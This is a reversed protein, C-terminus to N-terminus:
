DEQFMFGKGHEETLQELWPLFKKSLCDLYKDRNDNGKLTVLPGLGESWFCGWVVASGKDFKYTSLVCDSNLREGKRRIVKVG